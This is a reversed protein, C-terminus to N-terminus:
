RSASSSRKARSSSPHQPGMNLILEETELGDDSEIVPLAVNAADDVTPRERSQPEAPAPV